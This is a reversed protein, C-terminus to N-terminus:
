CLHELFEDRRKNAPFKFPPGFQFEGGVGLNKVIVIAINTVTSQGM